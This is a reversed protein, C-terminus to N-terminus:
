VMTRIYRLSSLSEGSKALEYYKLIITTQSLNASTRPLLQSCLHLWITAAGASLGYINISQFFSLNEGLNLEFAAIVFEFLESFCEIESPQNFGFERMIGDAEPSLIRSYAKELISQSATRATTVFPEQDGKDKAYEICISLLEFM